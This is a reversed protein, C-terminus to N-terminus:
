EQTKAESANSIAQFVAMIADVGDRKKSVDENTHSAKQKM